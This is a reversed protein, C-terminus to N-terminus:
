IKVGKVIRHKGQMDTIIEVEFFGGLNLLDGIEKGYRENIEFYLKGNKQLNIKCFDIIAKYFLLPNSDEVFLALHPEYELVNAQMLEKESNLVYPPNSVIIDFKEESYTPNLIDQYIWEVNTGIVKNNMKATELADRSVDFATVKSDAFVKNLSIAIAGTGTGIDLLKGGFNPNEKVILDVLEETEPRPILTYETVKFEHNYFFQTGIIYQLPKFNNLDKVAYYFKLMESESMTNKLSFVVQSKSYGLFNDMLLYFFSEVEEKPYSKDLSDFFYEKIAQVTNEKVFM